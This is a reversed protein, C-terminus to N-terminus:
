RRWVVPARGLDIEDRDDLPDGELSHPLLAIQDGAALPCVEPPASVRLGGTAWRQGPERLTLHCRPGPESAGVVEFIRLENM